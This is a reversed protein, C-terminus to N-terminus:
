QLCELVADKKKQGEEDLPEDMEIPEPAQDEDLEYPEKGALARAKKAAKRKKKLALDQAKFAAEKAAREQKRQEISQMIEELEAEKAAIERDRKEIKERNAKTLPAYPIDGLEPRYWDNTQDVGPVKKSPSTGRAEQTIEERIPSDVRQRSVGDMNRINGATMMTRKSGAVSSLNAAFPNKTKIKGKVRDYREPSKRIDELKQAHKKVVAMSKRLIESKKYEDILQAPVDEKEM